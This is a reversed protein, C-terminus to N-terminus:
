RRPAASMSSVRRASDYSAPSNVYLIQRAPQEREPFARERTMQLAVLGAALISLALSGLVLAKGNKM